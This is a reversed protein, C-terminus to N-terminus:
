RRPPPGQNYDPPWPTNEITDYGAPTERLPGAYNDNFFAMCLGWQRSTSQALWPVRKLLRAHADVFAMNTGGSHRFMISSIEDERPRIEKLFGGSGPDAGADALFHAEGPAAFSSLRIPYQLAVRYDSDWIGWDNMGYTEHGQGGAKAEPCAMLHWNKLGIQGTGGKNTDEDYERLSDIWSRGITGYTYYTYPFTGNYDDAYLHCAFAIQKVNSACQIQKARARAKSLAPLLLGALVGIIAIVVLLEILTFGGIFRKKNM